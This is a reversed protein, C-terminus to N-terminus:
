FVKHYRVDFGYGGYEDRVLSYKLKKKPQYEIEVTERQTSTVDTSFTLLISGTLRQQIAVQAGPDQSSGALPDITLQSLGTAQQLHSAVQSAAGQAVASEAGVSAPTDPNSAREATTQGFALLNIIDLEPLAPDSTYSTKLQTAPGAFHITINYQKVVTKVYLNVVAETQVPNSFAVTGSQVEFRKSLFFVEGGTLNVRGLIVPNAATGTVNLNAAGEMSLTSSVLALNQTSQVSVNLRMNSEFASPTSVQQENSVQALFTGLDFGDQFSLRDIRVQGSLLSKQPTGNLQVNGDLVARLGNPHIRVSKAEADMAFNPEKGYTFSGHTSITGGGATGKIEKINVRNGSVDIEGNIASLAVPLAEAALSTNVIRVQGQMSPEGVRGRSGVNFDMRGSSHVDPSAMQLLAMDVTGKASVNMAATGKVPITGQASLQTGSGKMRFEEITVVGNRYSMKWPSENSVQLTKYQAQFTPIEVRADMRALDKVPGHVSGHIETQGRFDQAMTPQYMAMLPGLPLSRVDLTANAPYEGKLDVDGKVQVSAQAVGSTVQVNAHQHALDLKADVDSFKQGGILLERADVKASLQPDTVAGEGNVSASLKGSVPGKRHQLSRLRDLEINPADLNAQYKQTKPFYTVKANVAGAAVRVQLTSEVSEDTGHFQLVFTQIPENWALANALQLSGQGKPERESGQLNFEGSLKGSVPYDVKALLQLEGVSVNKVEGRASLQSAPTFSWQHLATQASLTIEGGQATQAYLNQLRAGASSAEVNARITRWKSGQVALSSASLQGQMRPNQIAGSVQGSFNAVGFVEFTVPAPVNPDRGAAMVTMALESLEHLDPANAQVNLKSNRSLVGNLNVETKGTRIESQGFSVSQNRGDYDVTLNGNVPIENGQAETSAPGSLVVRAHAKADAVSNSWGAQLDAKVRGRLIVNQRMNAPVAASVRDLSVGRLAATVRAPSHKADLHLMEATATLHGGLLDADLKKVALNGSQLLYSGHLSSLAMATQNARVALTKCDLSGDIQLQKLIPQNATQHYALTGKLAVDGKPLSPNNLVRAFEPTSILGQYSGEVSPNAFDVIKAQLTFNSKPTALVLRDLVMGEASAEFEAEARHELRRFDKAVIWGGDYGASGRYMAASPDYSVQAHFDRLEASLPTQEDNHHILGDTIALYRVLVNFNSSSKKPPQPLNTSGEADSRVHLVPRDLVIAFLDVKKHLLARIGLSVRLHDAVALPAEDSREQGHVVIGYFDATLPSWQLGMNRIEIHAGTSKQAQDIISALLFRRFAETHLALFGAIILLAPIIAVIWLIPKRAKM